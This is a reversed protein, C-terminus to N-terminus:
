AELADKFSLAREMLDSAVHKMETKVVGDGLLEAQENLKRALLAVHPPFPGVHPINIVPRKWPVRPKTPCWDDIFESLSARNAQLAEERFAGAPLRTLTEHLSIKSMIQSFGVDVLREVAPDVPMSMHTVLELTGIPNLTRM